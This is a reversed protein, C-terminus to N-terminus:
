FKYNDDIGAFDSCFKKVAIFGLLKKKRFKRCKFINILLSHHYKIVDYNSCILYSFNKWGQLLKM